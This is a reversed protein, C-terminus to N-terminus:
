SGSDRINQVYASRNGLAFVDYNKGVAGQGFGNVDFGNLSQTLAIGNALEGQKAGNQAIVKARVTINVDQNFKVRTMRGTKAKDLDL